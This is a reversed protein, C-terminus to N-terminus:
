ILKQLKLLFPKLRVSDEVREAIVDLREYDDDRSAWDQPYRVHLNPAMGMKQLLEKQQLLVRSIMNMEDRIDKIERLLSM